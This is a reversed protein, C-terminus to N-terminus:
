KSAKEYFTVRRLGLSRLMKPGLTRTGSLVSSVYAPSLRHLRAFANVGGVESCTRGLLALVDAESLRAAM